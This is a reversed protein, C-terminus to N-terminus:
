VGEQGRGRGERPDQGSAEALSLVVDGDDRGCSLRSRAGHARLSCAPSDLRQRLMGWLEDASFTGNALESISENVLQGIARGTGNLLVCETKGVIGDKECTADLLKEFETKGFGAAKQLLKALHKQWNDFWAVTM